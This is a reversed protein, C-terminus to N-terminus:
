CCILIVYQVCVTCTNQVICYTVQRLILQGTKPIEKHLVGDVLQFKEARKRIVGKMEKTSGEPYTGNTLYDQM